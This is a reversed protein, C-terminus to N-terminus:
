GTHQTVITKYLLLSSHHIICNNYTEMINYNLKGYLFSVTNVLVTLLSDIRFNFTKTVWITRVKM